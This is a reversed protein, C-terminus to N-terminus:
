GHKYLEEEELLYGLSSVAPPVEVDNRPRPPEGKVLPHRYIYGTRFGQFLCCGDRSLTIYLFSLNHGVLLSLKTITSVANDLMRMLAEFEVGGVRWQKEKKTTTAPGDTADQLQKPTSDPPRRAAEYVHKRTEDSVLVLNEVGLPMLKMQFFFTDHLSQFLYVYWYHIRTPDIYVVMTCMNLCCSVTNWMEGVLKLKGVIRLYIKM